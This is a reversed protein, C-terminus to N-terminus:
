RMSSQYYHKRCGDHSATCYPSFPQPERSHQPTRNGVRWSKKKMSYYSNIKGRWTTVVCASVARLTALKQSTKGRQPTRSGATDCDMDVEPQQGSTLTPVAVRGRFTRHTAHEGPFSSRCRKYIPLENLDREREATRNRGRGRLLACRETKQRRPQPERRRHQACHEM